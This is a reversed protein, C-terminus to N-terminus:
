EPIPRPWAQVLDRVFPILAHRPAQPLLIPRLLFEGLFLAAISLPLVVLGFQAPSPLAPLASIGRTRLLCLLGLLALATQFIAWLLTLRWAYRVIQADDLHRSGDISAIARAILPTRPLRLSRAFLWGVLASILVPLLDVMLQAGGVALALATGCAVAGVGRRLVQPSLFWLLLLALPAAAATIWENGFLRGLLALALIAIWAAVRV